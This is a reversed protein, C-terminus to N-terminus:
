NRDYIIRGEELVEYLLRIGVGLMVKQRKPKDKHLPIMSLFLLSQIFKIKLKEEFNFFSYFLIKIKEHAKSYIIKYNFGNENEELEFLDEIIFDYMGDISHSLKALDYYKDGYIGYGGFDGRPDILKVIDSLPEYLINAFFYDGHIINLEESINIELKNVLKVIIERIENLNKVQKKNIYFDKKFYNSFQTDKELQKLRDNTKEIYIKNLIKKIEKNSLKLTYKNLEKHIYLLKDFIQKWKDLNHNGYLYLHHLTPYGYYEMTIRPNEYDLSYEYIRPTLWQLENPLKLFWKIENILKEKEISKKTLINKNKDIKIENFFRAEVIKQAKLFNNLHGFDIWEKKYKYKIKEILDYREIVNYLSEGKIKEKVIEEFTEYLLEYNLFNFFGIIINKNKDYSKCELKEIIKINLNEEDFIAWRNEELSKSYYLMNDNLDEVINEVLIDGFSISIKQLNINRYEKLVEYIGFGIDKLKSLKKVKLKPYQKTNIIDVIKNYEEHLTVIIEDYYKEYNTYLKDLVIGNELPILIPVIKGYRSQLEDNIVKASPIILINM